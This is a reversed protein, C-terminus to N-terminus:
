FEVRILPKSINIELDTNCCSRHLNALGADRGTLLGSFPPKSVASVRRRLPAGSAPAGTDFSVLVIGSRRQRKSSNFKM